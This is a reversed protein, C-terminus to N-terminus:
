IPFVYTNINQWLNRQSLSAELKLTKQLATSVPRPLLSVFSHEM